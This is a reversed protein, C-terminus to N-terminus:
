PKGGRWDPTVESSAAGGVKRVEPAAGELPGSSAGVPGPRPESPAALPVKRDERLAQQNVGFRLHQEVWASRSLRDRWAAEDVEDLVGQDITLTVRAKM